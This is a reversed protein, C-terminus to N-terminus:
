EELRALFVLGEGANFLEEALHGSGASIAARQQDGEAAADDAVYASEEGANVHAADGVDLHGCGEERLDIRADAAFGTDVQRLAFVQDPTEVMGEPDEGVDRNEASQGLTLEAGAEHLADLGADDAVAGQDAEQFLIGIRDQGAVGLGELFHDGRGDADLGAHHVAVLAFVAQAHDEIEAVRYAVGELLGGAIFEQQMAFGDAPAHDGSERDRTLAARDGGALKLAQFVEDV